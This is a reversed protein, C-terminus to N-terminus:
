PTYTKKMAVIYGNEIVISTNHPTFNYVIGADETLFDGPYYETAEADLNSEDSYTFDDLIPLTITGLEYYAKLDSMGIEFFVTNNDSILEFGGNEEGGNIRVLGTDLRELETVTIEENGRVIVDNEALTAIDVMDYLEYTYVSANMVAKGNDDVYVDGEEFSVAVTCNDLNNIDLTEPLPFITKANPKVPDTNETNETNEVNVDAEENQPQTQCGAFFSLCILSAVILALTKKM